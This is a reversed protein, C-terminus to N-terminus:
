GHKMEDIYLAHCFILELCTLSLIYCSNISKESANWTIMNQIWHCCQWFKIEFWHCSSLKSIEVNKRFISEYKEMGHCQFDSIQQNEVFMMTVWAKWEIHTCDTCYKGHHLATCNDNFCACWPSWCFIDRIFSNRNFTQSIVYTGFEWYVFFLKFELELTDNECYIISSLTKIDSRFLFLTVLIVWLSM